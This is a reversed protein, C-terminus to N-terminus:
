PVTIISSSCVNIAYIVITLERSKSNTQCSEYLFILRVEPRLKECKKCQATAAPRINVDNESRSAGRIMTKEEKNLDPKRAWLFKFSSNASDHPPPDDLFGPSITVAYFYHM